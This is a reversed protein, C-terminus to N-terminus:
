RQIYPLLSSNLSLTGTYTPFACTNPNAPDLCGIWAIAGGGSLGSLQGRGSNPIVEYTGTFNKAGCLANDPTATCDVGAPTNLAGTVTMSILTTGFFQDGDLFASGSFALVAEFDFTPSVPNTYNRVVREETVIWGRLGSVTPAAPNESCGPQNTALGALDVTGPCILTVPYSLGALTKTTSNYPQFVRPQNNFLQLTQGQISVNRTQALLSGSTPALLWLGLLVAVAVMLAYRFSRHM